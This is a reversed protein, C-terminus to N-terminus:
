IINPELITHLSFEKINNSVNDFPNGKIKFEIGYLMLALHVLDLQLLLPYM